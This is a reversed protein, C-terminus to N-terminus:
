GEEAELLLEFDAPVDSENQVDSLDFDGRTETVPDLPINERQRTTTAGTGDDASSGDASSSAASDGAAESSSGKDGCGCALLM